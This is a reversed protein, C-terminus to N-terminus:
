TTETNIEDSLNKNLLNYISMEQSNESLMLRFRPHNAFAKKNEFDLTGM